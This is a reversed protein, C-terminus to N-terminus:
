VTTKWCVPQTCLRDYLKTGSNIEKLKLRSIVIIHQNFLLSGHRKNNIYRVHKTIM